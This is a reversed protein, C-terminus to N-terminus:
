TNLSSELFLLLIQLSVSFSSSTSGGKLQGEPTWINAKLLVFVGHFKQMVILNKIDDNLFTNTVDSNLQSALRLAKSGGVSFPCPAPYIVCNDISLIQTTDLDCLAM